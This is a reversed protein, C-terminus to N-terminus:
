KLGQVDPLSLYYDQMLKADIAQTGNSECIVRPTYGYKALVQMLPRHDPGYEDNFTWHKKEGGSTYEIRSFHVHLNKAVVAGKAKEVREFVELFEEETTVLGRSVAHLHGFDVTPIVSDAMTCLELVEDLSGLQNVKGMTEPALYVGELGLGVIENLVNYFTRKVQEFASKREYKGPSGMHFVVRDAGLWLAAQLSKILHNRTNQRIKEDQSALNIYYPAHISIVIGYKKAQEAINRATAERINVGRSCSYEYASLGLSNLWAPMDASSKYGQEYFADPNGSSGFQALM